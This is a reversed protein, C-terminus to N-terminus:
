YYYWIHLVNGHAEHRKVWGYIPLLLFGRGHAKIAERVVATDCVMSKDGHHDRFEITDFKDAYASTIVDEILDGGLTDMPDYPIPTPDSVIGGRLVGSRQVYFSSGGRSSYDIRSYVPQVFVYTGRRYTFRIALTPSSGVFYDQCLPRAAM